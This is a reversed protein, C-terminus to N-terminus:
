LLMALILVMDDEPIEAAKLKKEIENYTRGRKMEIKSKNVITKVGVLKMKENSILDAMMLIDVGDLEHSNEIIYEEVLKVLGQMEFQMGHILLECANDANVICYNTYTYRIM